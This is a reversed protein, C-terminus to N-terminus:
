IVKVGVAGIGSELGFLKVLKHTENLLKFQDPEELNERVEVEVMMFPKRNDHTEYTIKHVNNVFVCELPLYKDLFEKIDM